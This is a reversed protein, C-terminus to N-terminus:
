FMNSINDLISGGKKSKKGVAAGSKVFQCKSGHCKQCKSKLMKRGNKTTALSENTNGTKAKCKVCYSSM